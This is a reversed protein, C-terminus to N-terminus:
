ISTGVETLIEQVAGGIFILGVVALLPLVVVLIVALVLCPVVPGENGEPAVMASGAARDHLGQRTPSMATSVLLVIEWVLLLGSVPVALWWALGLLTFPYGLAVWRIVAQGTSLTRGDAAQGVQLHFLRMGPTARGGSTWFGIFYLAYVGVTMVTTVVFSDFGGPGIIPSVAGLAGVILAVIITVIISDLWYALLRPLVGGFKLGGPVTTYAVPPQWTGGPPVPAGQGPYAGAAPYGTGYGGPPAGVPPPVPSAPMEAPYTYSGPGAPAPASPAPPPAPPQPAADPPSAAPLDGPPAGSTPATVPWEVQTDDEPHEGPLGAGGGQWTV